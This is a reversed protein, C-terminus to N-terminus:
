YYKVMKFEYAYGDPNNNWYGWGNLKNILMFFADKATKFPKLVGIHGQLYIGQCNYYTENGQEYSCIGERLCEEETIEQLKCQHVATIRIKHPMLDNRVYMKNDWGSSEVFDCFLFGNRDLMGIKECHAKNTHLLTEYSQKIAVIEGVKYRPKKDARWTRTKDGRLVAQELGYKTNFMIGKM